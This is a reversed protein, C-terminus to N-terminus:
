EMYRPYDYGRGPLAQFDRVSLAQRLRPVCCARLSRSHKKVQRHLGPLPFAWPHATVQVWGQPERKPPLHRRAPLPEPHLHQHAHHLRQGSSCFLSFRRTLSAKWPQWSGPSQQSNWADESILSPLHCPARPSPSIWLSSHPSNLLRPELEM